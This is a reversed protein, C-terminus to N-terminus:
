SDNTPLLAMVTQQYVNRGTSCWRIGNQPGNGGDAPIDCNPPTPRIDGDPYYHGNFNNMGSGFWWGGSNIVAITADTMGRKVCNLGTDVTQNYTALTAFPCGEDRAGVFATKFGDCPSGNSSWDGTTVAYRKSADLIRFSDYEGYTEQTMCSITRLNLRMNFQNTLAYINQLGIWYSGILPTPRGFYSEFETYTKEFSFGEEMRRQIVTYGGTAFFQENVETENAMLCYVEVPAGNINIMYVGSPMNLKYYDNCTRFTPPVTPPPTTVTTINPRTANNNPAAICSEIVLWPLLGELQEPGNIIKVNTPSNGTVIQVMKGYLASSNSQLM